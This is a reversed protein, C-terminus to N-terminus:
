KVYGKLFAQKECNSKDLFGFSSKDIINDNDDVYKWHWFGNSDTFFKLHAM